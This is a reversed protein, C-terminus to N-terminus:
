EDASREAPGATPRSPPRVGIPRAPYYDHDQPEVVRSLREGAALVLDLAPAILRILGEVHRRTAQQSETLGPMGAITNAKCAVM